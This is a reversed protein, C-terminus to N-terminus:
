AAGKPPSSPTASAAPFPSSGTGTLASASAAGSASSPAAAGQPAGSLAIGSPGIGGVSATFELLLRGSGNELLFGDVASTELLYIDLM